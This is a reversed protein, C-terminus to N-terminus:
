RRSGWLKAVARDSGLVGVVLSVLAAGGFVCAPLVFGFGESNVGVVVVGITLLAFLSGVAVLITRHSSKYAYPNEGSEFLNLIPSFLTQLLNKM